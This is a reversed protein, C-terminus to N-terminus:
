NEESIVYIDYVEKFHPILEKLRKRAKEIGGRELRMGSPWMTTSLAIGIVQGQGKGLLLLGRQDIAKRYPEEKPHLWPSATVKKTLCIMEEGFWYEICTEPTHFEELTFSDRYTNSKEIIKAELVKDIPAGMVLHVKSSEVRM